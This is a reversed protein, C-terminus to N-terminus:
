SVFKTIYRTDRAQSISKGLETLILEISRISDDNAPIVLDALSPDCNTDLLTISRIGLKKCEKVANIERLQGVIIVLSPKNYMKKLGGFYKNLKDRRKKLVSREKKTLSLNPGVKVETQNMLSNSDKSSTQSEIQLENSNIGLTTELDRLNKICKKMTNWNTLMGGLWRQNVYHSESELAVRRITESAQYKTGVFLISTQKAITSELFKCAYDLSERTKIIDIIHIGKRKVLIYPAMKPNWLRVQHGFHVGSELMTQIQLM